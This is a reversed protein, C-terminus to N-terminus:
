WLIRNQPRSNRPVLAYRFPRKAPILINLMGRRAAKDLRTKYPLKASPRPM